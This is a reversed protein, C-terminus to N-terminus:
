GAAAEVASSLLRRPAIVGEAAIRVLGLLQQDQYVRALSDVELSGTTTEAQQGRLIMRAMEATIDLRPLHDLLIDVPLLVGERAQQDALAELREFDLMADGTFPGTKLRRLATLHAGCGLAEGIDEALSRIYTGKSVAVEIEIGDSHRALLAMNYITVRRVAREIEIGQRALEYLPRGQHKLASYMPPVQDIEGRFRDLVADLEAQAIEPIERERIVTGEADGTDTVQGFKIRARYVKDAELLHSSFKTAEGFCVPLLGTAMPDLTGTHGAKQAQYLRRAKQLAYNSSMGKPKDLLLVGDIPLGRRRRAM